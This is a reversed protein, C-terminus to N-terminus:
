DGPTDEATQTRLRVLLTEMTGGEQFIKQFQSRYNRMLSVDDIVIDYAFWGGSGGVRHMRYEVDATTKGSSVTTRLRARGKRMEADGAYVVKLSHDPEFRKAYTRAILTQLLVVFEDQDASKMSPWERRITLRSLERFDVFGDMSAEIEDRMEEVPKGGQIIREMQQYRAAIVERPTAEPSAPAAFAIGSVLMLGALGPVWTKFMTRKM